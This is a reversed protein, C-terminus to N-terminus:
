EEDFIARVKFYGKYTTPSNTLADKQSLMRKQDVKDERFVNELGTVQSTEEVKSTDLTQIKNIYEFTDELEKQLKKLNKESIPLKALLAIKKVLELTLTSQNKM